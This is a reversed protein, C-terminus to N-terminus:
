KMINIVSFPLKHRYAYDSMELLTKLVAMDDIGIPGSRWQLGVSDMRATVAKVDQDQLRAMQYVGLAVLEGHLFNKGPPLCNELSYVFFHESGEEPRSHGAKECLAVEQRLADLLAELGERSDPRVVTELLALADRAIVEDYAEGAYSSAAQWDWAATYISFIDGWGAANLRLPAELLIDFDITLEDPKQTPRYVVTGNQRIATSDTLFADTSFATPIARVPCGQLSGILKATDVAQRGGLGTVQTASLSAYEQEVAQADIRKAYVIRDFPGYRDGYRQYVEEATVLIHM